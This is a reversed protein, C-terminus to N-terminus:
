RTSWREPLQSECIVEPKFVARECRVLAYGHEELDLWYDPILNAIDGRQMGQWPGRKRVEEPLDYFGGDRCVVFVHHDSVSRLSQYLETQM